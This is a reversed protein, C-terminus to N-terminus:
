AETRVESNLLPHWKVPGLGLPCCLLPIDEPSLSRWLCLSLPLCRGKRGLQRPGLQFENKDRCVLVEPLSQASSFPALLLHHQTALIACARALGQHGSREGCWSSPEQLKPVLHAALKWVVGCSLLLLRTRLSQWGLLRPGETALTAGLRPHLLEGCM